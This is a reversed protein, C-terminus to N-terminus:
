PKGRNMIWRAIRACYRREHVLALLQYIITVLLAWYFLATIFDLITLITGYPDPLVRYTSSFSFDWHLSAAGSWLLLLLSVTSLLLVALIASSKFFLARGTFDKWWEGAGFRPLAYLLVFALQPPVSLMFPLVRWYELELM